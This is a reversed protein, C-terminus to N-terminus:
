RKLLDEVTIAVYYLAGITPGGAYQIYRHNLLDAGGLKIQSHLAPLRFSVQADVTSYASVAGTVLPSEWLFSDQWRWTINFGINKAIARNGFSLNASWQPTNFGTVFIDNVQNSRMKNFNINGTTTFKKYINWTLGLAAGYNHYNNKANTYVRYRDQGNSAVTTASASTADRNRDLMAVVAADSGCRRPNQSM